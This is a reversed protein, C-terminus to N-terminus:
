SPPCHPHRASNCHLVTSATSYPSWPLLNCYNLLKVSCMSNRNWGCSVSLTLVLRVIFSDSARVSTTAPSQHNQYMSLSRWCHGGSHAVTAHRSGAAKCDAQESYSGVLLERFKSPLGRTPAHPQLKKFCRTVFSVSIGHAPDGWVTSLMYHWCWSYWFSRRRLWRHHAKGTM